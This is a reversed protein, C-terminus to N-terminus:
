FAKELATNASTFDLLMISGSQTTEKKKIINHHNLDSPSEITNKFNVFIKTYTKTDNSGGGKPLNGTQNQQHQHYLM